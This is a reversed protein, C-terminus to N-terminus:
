QSAEKPAAVKSQIWPYLKVACEPCIGHSFEADSHDRIYEEIQNWYGKDDRIKKCSACIPMLGRLTKIKALAEQLEAHQQANAIAGAIQASINEVLEMHRKTYARPKLARFHLIGIVEDSSILPTSLFSRLGAQFGPVLGPYNRELDELSDAHVLVSSKTDIAQKTVSGQLQTIDGPRRQPVDIGSVYANDFTGERPNAIVISVRDGPILKCALEAFRQYVENIELSSSMIRGLEALAEREHAVRQLAGHLQSNAVAGSIQGAVREALDLHRASYARSHRSRLQLTGIVRDGSVLPTALASRLGARFSPVMSPHKELLEEENDLQVILGKGTRAVSEALTSALPISDGVRRSAVDTGDIYALTMTDLGDDFLGVSVRDCPVLARVQEAFRGYVEEIDLSSSIIRGIEVLAADERQRAAEIKSRQEAEFQALRNSAALERRARIVERAQKEGWYACIWVLGPVVMSVFIVGALGRASFDSELLAVELGEWIAFALGSFLFLYRIGALLLAFRELSQELKRVAEPEQPSQDKFASSQSM